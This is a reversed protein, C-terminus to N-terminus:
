SIGHGCIAGAVDLGDGDAPPVHVRHAVDVVGLVEGVALRGAHAVERGHAHQLVALVFPVPRREGCGREVEAPLHAIESWRVPRKMM